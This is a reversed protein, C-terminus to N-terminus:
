SYEAGRTWSPLFYQHGLVDLIDIAHNKVGSKKVLLYVRRSDTVRRRRQRAITLGRIM